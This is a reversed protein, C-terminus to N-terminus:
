RGKLRYSILNRIFELITSFNVFSNRTELEKFEIPFEYFKIGLKSIKIMIEADIFWDDYTLNLREYVARTFLKPKSNIDRAKVSPFMVKFVANYVTSILKRKFGDGRKTRYTKVLEFEGSKIKKYGTTISEIPFQGDGDIFCLVNGRSESLGLRVDWGMMGKKVQSIAKFVPDKSAIEKIIEPTKDSSGELYNGVLVIEFSDTLKSVEEKLKESFPIISEEARYCLIVVSLELHEKM